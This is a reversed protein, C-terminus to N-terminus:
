KNIRFYARAEDPTMPEKDMAHLLRVTKAVLPANTDAQTDADLYRSDEFGIRVTKAGMGLAGAILSFDKRRAHTIGWLTGAPIMQIMAALAQPTAPAEGEHGLVISFLVPSVFHYKKMLEYMMWTHGIEFTEVEPTKKQKLIERVCYEVDDVPNSYVNKGLNTSGVNLSCAEVLDSYLPACREQITLNSVGGTSVEIVIDSDKRILRLTEELLTMDPTLNGERDRVHLHVMAAGAKYCEYVDEAIKEPIIVKDDAAVPAVSVLVKNEMNEM